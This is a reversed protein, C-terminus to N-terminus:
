SNPSFRRPANRVRVRPITFAAFLGFSFQITTALLRTYTFSLEGIHPMRYRYRWKGVARQSRRLFVIQRGFLEAKKMM